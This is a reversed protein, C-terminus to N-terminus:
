RDNRLLRMDSLSSVQVALLVLPQLLQVEEVVQTQWEPQLHALPLQVEEEPGEQVEAEEALVEEEEQEHKMQAQAYQVQFDQAETAALTIIEALKDLKDLVEVAEATTLELLLPLVEM